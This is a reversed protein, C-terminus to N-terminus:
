IGHIAASMFLVDEEGVAAMPIWSGTKGFTNITGLISARKEEADAGSGTIIRDNFAGVFTLQNHYQKMLAEPDNANQVPNWADIGLEIFDDLIPVIYGGSYHEFIMGLEHCADVIKKLNPKILERWAEASMILTRESGYDDHFQIKDPKYYAALKKLYAIKHEAIASLLEFSAEPDVLINCLGNEFGSLSYFREWLGNVIVVNSLRNERDWADTDHAAGAAWDPADVDPFHVRERWETVDELVVPDKKDQIPGPQGEYLQWTVGWGDKYAGPETPYEELVSPYCMDCDKISPIFHPVKHRYAMLINERRTINEM